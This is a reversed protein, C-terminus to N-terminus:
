GPQRPFPLRPQVTDGQRRRLQSVSVGMLRIPAVPLTSEFALARATSLLEEFTRLGSTLTHSRTMSKFDAYRVKVTVTRASLGAGDLRDALERCLEALVPELEARHHRDERFTTEAGLSKHPRHAVVPRDDIGCAIDHLFRGVKGFARALDEVDRDRLDAGSYIGAARLRAATRPGVGHFREISLEALFAQAREPPIVTLGDPKVLGSAVKALFKGTSVGASATLGTEEAIAAKIQRALLTASAPGRKPQTVDLYAEDLALPEVLDTYREFIARVQRSVERYADFRPSVVILEPCLRVARATPMASGVGFRRAEYSATMVVGRPGTGGVAVPHGRLDPADRQEVSAYFADMDVHIIKRM